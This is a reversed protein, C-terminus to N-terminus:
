GDNPQRHESASLDRGEEHRTGRKSRLDILPLALSYSFCTNETHRGANSLRSCVCNRRGRFVRLTKRIPALTGATSRSVVKGIPRGRNTANLTAFRRSEDFSLVTDRRKDASSAASVACLPCHRQSTSGHQRAHRLPRARRIYNLTDRRKDACSPSRVEPYL